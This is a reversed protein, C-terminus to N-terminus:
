HRRLAASAGARLLYGPNVTAAELIAAMAKRFEKVRFQNAAATVLLSAYFGRAAWIFKRGRRGFHQRVMRILVYFNHRYKTALSTAGADYYVSLPQPVHVFEGQERAILGMFSDEFGAGPFEECFGGCAEFAVRRMVIATPFFAVGDRLLDDLTPSGSMPIKITREGTPSVNIFDSYALAADPSKDLAVVMIRLKGPLWEDDGDLFALYDGCSGRVGANRAAAAGRNRQRIIHIEEGYEALVEPTSDTSGDDVVIVEFEKYDQALVSHIARRLTTANNYAPIIASVRIRDAAL